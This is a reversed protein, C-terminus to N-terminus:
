RIFIAYEHPNQNLACFQFFIMFMFLIMVTSWKFYHWIKKWIIYQKM